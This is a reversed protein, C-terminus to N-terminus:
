TEMQPDYRLPSMGFTWAVGAHASGTTPPVRLWYPKRTGDPEPTSNIVRVMVLPEGDFDDIRWLEGTRDQAIRRGMETMVREAGYYSLLARRVGPDPEQRIQQATLTEPAFLIHPDAPFRGEVAFLASGDRWRVAPGDMHHLRGREDLAVEVPPEMAVATRAFAWICDVKFVLDTFAALQDLTRRGDPLNAAGPDPAVRILRDVAYFMVPTDFNPPSATALLRVHSSLQEALELGYPRPKTVDRSQELLGRFSNSIKPGVSRGFRPQDRLQPAPAPAVALAISAPLALLAGLAALPPLEGMASGLTGIIICALAVLVPLTNLRWDPRPRVNTAGTLVIAFIWPAILLFGLVVLAGQPLQTVDPSIGLAPGAFGILAAIAAVGLLVWAWARRWGTRALVAQAEGPGGVWLVRDPPSLGAARYARVIGAEAEARSPKRRWTLRDRWASLDPWSEDPNV